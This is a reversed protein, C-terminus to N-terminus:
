QFGRWFFEIGWLGPLDNERCADRIGNIVQSYQDSNFNSWRWKWAKEWLEKRKLDGKNLSQLLLADVPPHLAQVYPDDHYGGCVFVAKTYCNILKAAIGHSIPLNFKTKGLDRITKRWKKHIKDLEESSPLQEPVQIRNGFEDLLTSELLEKGTKVSFRCNKVSSARGAAWVGFRHKHEHISYEM